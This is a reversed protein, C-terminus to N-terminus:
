WTPANVLLGEEDTWIGTPAPASSHFYYVAEGSPDGGVTCSLSVGPVDVVVTFDRHSRSALDVTYGSGAVAASVDVMTSGVKTLVHLPFVTLCGNVDELHLTAKTHAPSDNALRLLFKAGGPPTVTPATEVEFGGDRADGMFPQTGARIYMDAGGASRVPVYAMAAESNILTGGTSYLYVQGFAQEVDGTSTLPTLKLLLALASGPAIVPTYYGDLSEALDTISSGGAILDQTEAGGVFPMRVNFQAPMSGTDTVKLKFTATHAETTALTVLHSPVGWTYVAGPGLISLQGNVSDAGASGAHVTLGALTALVSGVAAARWRRPVAGLRPFPSAKM